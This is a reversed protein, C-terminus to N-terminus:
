QGVEGIPGIADDARGFKFAYDRALELDMGGCNDRISFAESSLEIEVKLGAFRDDGQERRVRKAGDASNDVLDIIAPMLEIDRVLMSVFFRRAPTADVRM